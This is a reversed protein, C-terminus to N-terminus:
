SWIVVCYRAAATRWVTEAVCNEVSSRMLFCYRGSVTRWVPETDFVIGVQLLEQCQGRIVFGYRGAVTRLVPELDCFLVRRCFKEM